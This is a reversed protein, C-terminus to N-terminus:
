ALMPSFCPLTRSPSSRPHLYQDLGDADTRGYLLWFSHLLHSPRVLLALSLEGFTHGRQAFFDLFTSRVREATWYEGGVGGGGGDGEVERTMRGSFSSVMRVSPWFQRRSVSGHTSTYTNAQVLGIAQKRSSFSSLRRSCSWSCFRSSSGSSSRLATSFINLSTCHCARRWNQAVIRM